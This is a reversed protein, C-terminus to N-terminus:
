KRFVLSLVGFALTQIAVLSTQVSEGEGADARTMKTPSLPLWRVLENHIWENM